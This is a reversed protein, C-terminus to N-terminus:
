VSRIIRILNRAAYQISHGLLLLGFFSALGSLVGNLTTPTSIFNGFLELLRPFALTFTLYLWTISAVATITEVIHQIILSRLSPRNIYEVEVSVDQRLRRVLKGVLWAILFCALALGCWFIFYGAYEAYSQSSLKDVLNSIIGTQEGPVVTKGGPLKEWILNNFYLGYLILILVGYLLSRLWISSLDRRNKM